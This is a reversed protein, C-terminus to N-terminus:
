VLASPPLRHGLTWTHGWCSSLSARLAESLWLFTTLKLHLGM